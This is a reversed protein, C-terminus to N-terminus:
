SWTSIYLPVDLTNIVCIIESRGCINIKPETSLDLVDIQTKSCSKMGMYHYSTAAYIHSTFKLTCVSIVVYFNYKDSYIM